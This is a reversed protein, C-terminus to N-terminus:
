MYEKILDIEGPNLRRYDGPKLNEDLILNGFSIRKLGVVENGVAKLMRKVQHYRGERITLLIDEGQRVCLAPLTKKDDGIDVGNILNNIDNDSIPYKCSVIYCKDVHKSPSLMNHNLNGNDTILLLGETDKDLRGVPSLGKRKDKILDMVTTDRKDSRACVYGKPKNMIIYIYEEYSIKNDYLFVNSDNCVSFSTDTIVTDDVKVAKKKILRTSESRTCGTCMSVFKDIRM